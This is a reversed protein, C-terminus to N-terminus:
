RIKEINTIIFTQISCFLGNQTKGDSVLNSHYFFSNGYWGPYGIFGLLYVGIIQANDGVKDSVIKFKANVKNKTINHSESTLMFKKKLFHMNNNGYCCLYLTSSTLNQHVCFTQPIDNSETFISSKLISPWENCSFMCIKLTGCFVWITAISVWIDWFAWHHGSPM